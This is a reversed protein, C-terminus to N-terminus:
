YLLSRMTNFPSPPHKEKKKKEGLTESLSFKTFARYGPVYTRDGGCQDDLMRNAGNTSDKDLSEHACGTEHNDYIDERSTKTRDNRRHHWKSRPSNSKRSSAAPALLTHVETGNVFQASYVGDVADPPVLFASAKLALFLATLLVILNM